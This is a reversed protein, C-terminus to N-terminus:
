VKALKNRAFEGLNLLKELKSVDSFILPAM